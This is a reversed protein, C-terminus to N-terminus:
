LSDNDTIKSRQQILLSLYPPPSPLISLHSPISCSPISYSPIRHNFLFPPFLSPPFTLFSNILNLISEILFSYHLSNYQIAFFFHANHM